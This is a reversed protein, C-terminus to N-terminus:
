GAQITAGAPNRTLGSWSVVGGDQDKGEHVFHPGTRACRTGNPSTATCTM